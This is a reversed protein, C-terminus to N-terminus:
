TDPLAPSYLISWGASLGTDGQPMPSIQAWSSQCGPEEVGANCINTKGKSIMFHSIKSISLITWLLDIRKHRNRSRLLVLPWSSPILLDLTHVLASPVAALLGVACQVMEISVDGHLAM